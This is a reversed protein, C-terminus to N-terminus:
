LDFCFFFVLGTLKDHDSNVKGTDPNIIGRFMEPDIDIRLFPPMPLGLFKTTATTLPPIYLTELDFNISIEGDGDEEANDATGTGTGGEANYVFDPFRSIGLKCSGLTKFKVTYIDPETVPKETVTAASLQHTQDVNNNNNNNYSSFLTFKQASSTTPLVLFSCLHTPKKRVSIRSVIRSNLSQIQTQYEM